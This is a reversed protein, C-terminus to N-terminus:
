SGSLQGSHSQPFEMGNWRLAACEDVASNQIHHTAFFQLIDVFNLILTEPCLPFIMSTQKGGGPFAM